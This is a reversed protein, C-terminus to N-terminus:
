HISFSYIHRMCDSKYCTFTVKIVYYSQTKEEEGEPPLMVVTLIEYRNKLKDIKSLRENFESSVTQRQQDVYRIQSTLMAKHVKIEEVREEMATCLQQKRKELSLVEEAKSYLQERARKVQLKLLNDEIM